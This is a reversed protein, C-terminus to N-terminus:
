VGGRVQCGYESLGFTAILGIEECSAASVLHRIVNYQIMIVSSVDSIRVPPFDSTLWGVIM